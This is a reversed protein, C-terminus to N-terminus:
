FKWSLLGLLVGVVATILATSEHHPFSLMEDWNWAQPMFIQDLVLVIAICILLGAVIRLTKRAM